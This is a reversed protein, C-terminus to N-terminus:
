DLGVPDRLEIEPTETAGQTGPVETAETARIEGPLTPPQDQPQIKESCGSLALLIPLAIFHRSQM